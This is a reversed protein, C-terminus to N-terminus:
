LFQDDVEDEGDLVTCNGEDAANVQWRAAVIRIRSVPLYNLFSLSGAISKCSKDSITESSTANVTFVVQGSEVEKGRFNQQHKQQHSLTKFFDRNLKSQLKTSALIARYLQLSNSLDLWLISLLLLLILSLSCYLSPM